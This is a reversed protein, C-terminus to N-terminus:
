IDLTITTLKIIIEVQVSVKKSKINLFIEELQNTINTIQTLNKVAQECQQEHRIEQIYNQLKHFKVETAVVNTILENAEDPSYAGKTLVLQYMNVSSTTSNM